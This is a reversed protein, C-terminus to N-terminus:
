AVLSLGSLWLEFAVGPFQVFERGLKHPSSIYSRLPRDILLRCLPEPLGTDIGPPQYTALRVRGAEEAAPAGQSPWPAHCAHPAGAYKAWPAQRAEPLAGGAVPGLGSPDTALPAPRPDGGGAGAALGAWLTPCARHDGPAKRSLNSPFSGVWPWNRSSRAISPRNFAMTSAELTKRYPSRAMATRMAVFKEGQGHGGRHPAPRPFRCRQGGACQGRPPREGATGPCHLAATPRSPGAPPPAPSSDHDVEQGLLAEYATLALVAVEPFPGTWAKLGAKRKRGVPGAGVRRSAMTSPSMGFGPTGHSPMGKGIGSSCWPKPITM